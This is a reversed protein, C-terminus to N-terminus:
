FHSENQEKLLGLCNDWILREPEPMALETTILVSPRPINDARTPTPGERQVM